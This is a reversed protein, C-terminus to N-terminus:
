SEYTRFYVILSLLFVMIQSVLITVFSLHFRLYRSFAFYVRYLTLAALVGSFLLVSAGFRDSLVALPMVCLMCISYDCGYVIVRLLHRKQLKARRMARSISRMFVFLFMLTLWPWALTELCGIVLPYMIANHRTLDYATSLYYGISPEPTVTVPIIRTPHSYFLLTTSIPAPPTRIAKYISWGVLSVLVSLVPLTSFFWFVILRHFRVPHGPHIERWFRAAFCDRAWTKLFSWVTREPHHEFLYRHAKQQGHILEAWTFEFGCEPCRPERLGRLNYECLPCRLHLNSESGDPPSNVFSLATVGAIIGPIDRERRHSLGSQILTM